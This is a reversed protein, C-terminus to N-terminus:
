GGAGIFEGVSDGGAEPAARAERGIVSQFDRVMTPYPHPGLASGLLVVDNLREGYLARLETKFETLVTNLNMAWEAKIILANYWERDAPKTM